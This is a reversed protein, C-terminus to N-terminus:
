LKLSALFGGIAEAVLAPTQVAMFHGSDLAQFRAGPIAQAIPEVLAPPRLRDHIGALLLTPCAIAGYSSSLDTDVLMRYIAAYSHPDNALWRARFTRYHEADHRVEPPYSAAFSEEVVAAMGSKATSDARALTAARREPAIGTAPGMAVLAATRAAHRLAFTMAIGGGVACGAIAVRGGIGLADLLAAIDDAMLAMTPTASLKESQGAGRTDYRLVRRTASLAPLVHDWSDLTGGMEHVLVLTSPRDGSLEAGPLDAGTLEYRLATRNVEIWQKM